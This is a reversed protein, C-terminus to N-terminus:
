WYNEDPITFYKWSSWGTEENNDFVAKVRYRIWKDPVATEVAELDPHIISGDQLSTDPDFVTFSDQSTCCKEKEVKYKDVNTIPNWKLLPNFNVVDHEVIPVPHLGGHDHASELSTDM